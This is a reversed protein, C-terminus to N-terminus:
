SENKFLYFINKKNSEKGSLYMLSNKIMNIFFKTRSLYSIILIYPLLFIRGEFVVLFLMISLIPTLTEFKFKYLLIYFNEYIKGLFLGTLNLGIIYTIFRGGFRVWLNAFLDLGVGVSSIKKLGYIDWVSSGIQGFLYPFFNSLLKSFSDFFSETTNGFDLTMLLESIGMSRGVIVHIPLLWVRSITQTQYANNAYIQILDGGILYPLVFNRTLSSIYIFILFYILWFFYKKKGELLFYIPLSFVVSLFRSGSTICVFIGM